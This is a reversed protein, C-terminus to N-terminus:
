RILYSLWHCCFFESVTKDEAPRGVFVCGLLSFQEVINTKVRDLNILSDILSNLDALFIFRVKM